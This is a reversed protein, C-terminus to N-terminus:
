SLSMVYKKPTTGFKKKFAAVIEIGLDNNGCSKKHEREHTCIFIHKEYVLNDKM